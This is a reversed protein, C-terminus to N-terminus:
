AFLTADIGQGGFYSICIRQDESASVIRTPDFGIDFIRANHVRLERLPPSDTDQQPDWLKIARDYGGSVILQRADDYAIARVLQDHAKFVRRPQGRRADWTRITQDNSGSVVTDGRFAICALGREHGSFTFLTAGSAIDWLHISGDGSASVVRDGQIDAANVPGGHEVYRRVFAYEGRKWVRVTTDKSCSVIWTENFAVDLVGETHGRLKAVVKDLAHEVVGEGEDGPADQAQPQAPTALVAAFDWVFVMSDSSGSVLIREDYQLSLVSASHSRMVHQCMGTELDWVRITRDRSGSVVKGLGGTNVGTDHSVCYVSDTHGRLYTLSPKFHASGTRSRTQGGGPQQGSRWRQELIHRDMYLKVWNLGHAVSHGGLDFYEISDRRSSLGPGPSAVQARRKGAPTSPGRAPSALLNAFAGSTAVTPSSVGKQPTAPAEGTLTLRSLDPLGPLHISDRWSKLASLRAALVAKWEEEAAPEGTPDPVTNTNTSTNRRKQAQAALVLEFDTRINWGPNRFFLERWVTNDMAITRWLRSVASVLLVDRHTPLHYIVCLALEFPLESLFDIQVQEQDVFCAEDDVSQAETTDQKASPRVPDQASPRRQSTRLPMAPHGAMLGSPDLDQIRSRSLSGSATPSLPPVLAGTANAASRVSWSRQMRLLPNAREASDQGNCELVNSEFPNSVEGEIASPSAVIHSPPTLAHPGSVGLSGSTGSRLM